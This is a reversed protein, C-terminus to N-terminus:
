VAKIHKKKIKIYKDDDDDNDDDDDDDGYTPKSDFDIRLLSQIKKWIKNYNKSLQKDNVKPSITIPNKNKHKENKNENFENIYGTM